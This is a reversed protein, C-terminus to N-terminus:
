PKFLYALNRRAGWAELFPEIPYSVLTEPDSNFAPDMCLVEKKNGEYGIILILHGYPYAIQARPLTGKISVVVPLGKVLQAYVTCFDPLRAVLTQYNGRLAEYAAAMNLVWNGYIDFGSDHVEKAFALPDVARKKLLFNIAATTATPSCLDRHRPHPLAM